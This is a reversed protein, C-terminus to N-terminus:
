VIKKTFRTRAKNASPKANSPKANSKSKSKNKNLQSKFNRPKKTYNDFEDNDSKIMDSLSKGGFNIGINNYDRECDQFYKMIPTQGNKRHTEKIIFPKFIDDPNECLLELFQLSPKMIQNTIYFLYDLKVNNQLIYAPHEARDGQLNVQKKTEIYAYPMRDNAQPKNGPDRKAIRDAIVMHVMRTWDKYDEKDKLTKTIVFKDINYRGKIIKQLTNQTYKIAGEADRKNLIQDIIGGVVVKVIDANDRRKTVLGMSSQYFYSSTFGYLNGVYRKKSIIVFPWYTKEYQLKQPFDLTYNVIQSTLIGVKISKDLAEFDRKPLGTVRDILNLKFFVSDTDGYIVKPQINYKGILDYLEKKIYQYFEEKGQYLSVKIPKGDEGLVKEGKENKKDTKASVMDDKVDKYFNRMFRLFKSDDGTDVADKILNLIDRMDNEVYNRALELMGRGVATTCAAIERLAIASVSSGCQGYLSNATVKYALQLGNWIAKKFPDKEEDMLDKCKERASLLKLLIRPITAKKGDKREAYRCTTTTGDSNNFTVDHYIYGPLNDYKPDLVISNHSLNKMIMSSPYLSGYDFVIIPEGHVGKDPDFVTAGEYTENDEEEDDEEEEKKGMLSEVFKALRQEQKEDETMVVNGEADKLPEKKQIKKKTPILYNEERCQKAVLSHIKIGQGRLFLYSLPVSCVNGMGVNNPLIQLKALVLNCSSCDKLCYKAVKARQAETGRYFRFIDKPEMDDKAQCWFVKWKKKLFPRIRVKGEVLITPVKIDKGDKQIIIDKIELIRYKEGIKNDVTGDNYYISIFDDENIGFTSKVHLRTYKIKKKGKVKMNKKNDLHVDDDEINDDESSYCDEEQYNNHDSKNNKNKNNNNKQLEAIAKDKASTEADFYKDRYADYEKINPDTEKIYDYSQVADRVFVSLVFDLKYGGLKYGSQIVKMLDIHVRGPTVYYKLNNRGLASSQLKQEKFKCVLNQVRSLRCFKSQINHLVARSNLYPWDFGFINYGTIIDPDTKIIYDTFALLMKKESDFCIVEAGPIDNTDKMCLITKKYCETEGLYSFTMGIQIIEDEERDAQPFKGDKSTCELDFSLIKFKHIDASEHRTVSKWNCCISIDTTGKRHNPGLKKMASKPVSVWGIPDINQIHMFRLMPHLNSEYIQFKVKRERSIFPMNLKKSFVKEYAQFADYDKFVLHVYNFYADDTFGHFKHAKIIKYSLLGDQCSKPYVQKKVTGIVKDIVEKRWRADVEIFFYPTFGEVNLFVSKDDSTKGFLTIDFHKNGEDDIRNYSDVDLIQFKVDTSPKKEDSDTDTNTDNDNKNKNKDDHKNDHKNDNKDNSIDKTDSKKEEPLAMLMFDDAMKKNKNNSMNNDTDNDAENDNDKDVYEQSIDYSDEEEEYKSLLKETIKIKKGIKKEFIRLAINPNHIVKLYNEVEDSVFAM